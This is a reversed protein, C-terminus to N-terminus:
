SASRAVRSIVSNRSSILLFFALDVIAAPIMTVASIRLQRCLASSSSSAGVMSTAFLQKPGACPM